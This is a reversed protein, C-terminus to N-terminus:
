WGIDSADVGNEQIESVQVMEAKNREAMAQEESVWHVTSMSGIGLFIASLVTLIM